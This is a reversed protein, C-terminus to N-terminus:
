SARLLLGSLPSASSYAEIASAGSAQASITEGGDWEHSRANLSVSLSQNRFSHQLSSRRIPSHQLSSFVATGALKGSDHSLAGVSRPLSTGYVGESGAYGHFQSAYHTHSAEPFGFSVSRQTHADAASAPQRMTYAEAHGGVSGGSAPRHYQPIATTSTAYM